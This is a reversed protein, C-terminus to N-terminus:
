SDEEEEDEKANALRLFFFKKVLLRSLKKTFEAYENQTWIYMDGPVMGVLDKKEFLQQITDEEVCALFNFFKDLPM